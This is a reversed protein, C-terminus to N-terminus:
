YLMIVGQLGIPALHSPFYAKSEGKSLESLRSPKQFFNHWGLSLEKKSHAKPVSGRAKGQTSKSGKPQPGLGMSAQKAMPAHRAHMAHM